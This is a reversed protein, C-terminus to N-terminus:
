ARDFAVVAAAWVLAALCASRPPRPHRSAVRPDGRGGVRLWPSRRPSTLPLLVRARGAFRPTSARPAARGGLGADGRRRPSRRSGRWAGCGSRARRRTAAPAVAPYLSALGLRGLVPALAPAAVALPPSCCRFRCCSRRAILAVGAYGGWAALAVSAAVRSRHRVTAPVRGALARPERGRPVADRDDLEPAVRRAAGCSALRGARERPRARPLTSPTACGAPLDPRSGLPPAREGIARATAAPSSRAVPNRGSWCEYLTLALAYVDAAPGAEAGEAQEPAMYALTGVVEGSRTLARHRGAARDRLGDAEGGVGAPLAPTRNPDPLDRERAQHGPPRRGARPRPSRRASTRGSSAGRRPGLARGRAGARRLTSGEVLESVLYAHVGDPRLEYLTVIGRHNLRAAAQAERM